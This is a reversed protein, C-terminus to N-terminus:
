SGHILNQRVVRRGGWGAAGIARGEGGKEFRVGARVLAVLHQANVSRWRTQAQEILKYAM